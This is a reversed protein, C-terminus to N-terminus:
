NRCGHVEKARVTLMALVKLPKQSSFNKGVKTHSRQITVKIHHSWNCHIYFDKCSCTNLFRHFYYVHETQLRTLYDAFSRSLSLDIVTPATM